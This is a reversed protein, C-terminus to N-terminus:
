SETLQAGPGPRATLVQTVGPAALLRDRVASEAEPLCMCHVNPGADVSYAVALGAKRWVPIDRLLALTAPDWYFLPPRSTMMVAHMLRTDEEIIEALLAFDRRLIADRCADLRRGADLVRPRQFPSTIALQNGAESSISKPEKSIIAILDILDWHDPGAISRAYSNSDQDGAFWEVFGAPISRSASGSGRRALASLESESCDMELAYTAALTLAAFASASSAIGAGAPFSNRSEVKAKLYIGARKRIVDLHASVRAFTAPDAPNGQLVVTDIPSDPLFQVETQTFLGGLNMSISGNAPLRLSDERNGWYKIFAINPCAVATAKYTQM